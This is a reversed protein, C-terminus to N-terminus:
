ALPGHRAQQRIYDATRFSNALITLTSPVGGSTPMFSGDVVFLNPVDHTQCFQNLVSTAPNTGARCTGHAMAHNIGGIRGPAGDVAGLADFAELARNALWAGALRHHNCQSVHLRAVPLGWKDTTRDDCDVFTRSNPIFDHFIEASLECGDRYYDRLARKLPEGWVVRDTSPVAKRLADVIPRPRGADFQITGGKAWPVTGEPLFYHDAVSHDLFRADYARPATWNARARAASSAQFQLHRGVLGNRNALGDPFQRSRSLLLLRASEVASCSVCIVTAYISREVGDADFYVCGTAQGRDNVMITHVMARALVRCRGTREARPLLTELTSGRAGTPCGFGACRDCFTCAPRGDFPISNIAHPTPFAHLGVRACADVLAPALWHADLPKMPYPTSRHGETPNVGARGSVGIEAEAKAYYPELTAYEYPWDDIAEFSGYRRRLRFDDPHFRYLLGGMHATGGGVCCAIWGLTTLERRGDEHCLVHPEKTVDPVFQRTGLVAQLDDIRFDDRSYRPGKELVVVDFGARSLELAIPSGGAGSGIVLVDATERM